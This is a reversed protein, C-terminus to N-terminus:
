TQGDTQNETDTTEEGDAPADTQEEDPQTKGALEALFNQHEYYTESFHHIGDANLAYFYYNTEAYDLAEQPDGQYANPIVTTSFSASSKSDNRFQCEVRLAPEGDSDERISYGLITVSCDRYVRTNPDEQASSSGSASGPSPVASGSPIVPEAPASGTDSTDASGAPTAPTTGSRFLM